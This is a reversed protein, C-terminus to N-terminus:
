VKKVDYIDLKGPFKSLVKDRNWNRPDIYLKYVSNQTQSGLAERCM